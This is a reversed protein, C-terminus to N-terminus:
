LQLVSIDELLGYFYLLLERSTIHWKAEVNWGKDVDAISMNSSNPQLSQLNPLVSAVVCAVAGCNINIVRKLTKM